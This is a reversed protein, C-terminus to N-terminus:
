GIWIAVLVDKPLGTKDQTDEVMKNFDKLDMMM